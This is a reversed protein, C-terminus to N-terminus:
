FGVTLVVGARWATVDGGGLEQSAQDHTSSSFNVALDVGDGLATKAEASIVTTTDELSGRTYALTDVSYGITYDFDGVTTALGASMISKDAGDSDLASYAASLTFSGMALDAGIGTLSEDGCTAGGFVTNVFTQADLDAARGAVGPTVASVGDADYSSETDTAYAAIAILGERASMAATAAATETVCATDTSASEMGGGLTLTSAGMAMEYGFGISFTDDYSGDDLTVGATADAGDSSPNYGLALDIGGISPTYYTINVDGTGSTNEYHASNGGGLIKADSGTTGALMDAAASKGGIRFLVEGFAGGLKLEWDDGNATGDLKMKDDFSVELGNALTGSASFTIERGMEFTPSKISKGGCPDANFSFAVEGATQVNDLANLTTVAVATTAQTAPTDADAPSILEAQAAASLTALATDIKGAAVGIYANSAAANCIGGGFITSLEAEGGVTLSIPSGSSAPADAAIALGSYLGSILVMATGTIIKNM